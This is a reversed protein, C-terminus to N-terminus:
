RARVPAIASKIRRVRHPSEGEEARFAEGGVSFGLHSEIREIAEEELDLRDNLFDEVCFFRKTIGSKGHSTTNALVHYAEHAVARGLSRGLLEERDDPDLNRRALELIHRIRQPDLEVFSLIEGESLHTFALAKPPAQPSSPWIRVVVVRNSSVQQGPRHWSLRVQALSYIRAFEVTLADRAVASVEARIDLVLAIHTRADLADGATAIGALWLLLGASRM